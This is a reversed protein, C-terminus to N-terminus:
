VKVINTIEFDATYPTGNMCIILSKLGDRTDNGDTDAAVGQATGYTYNGIQVQNVLIRYGGTPQVTIGVTGILFFFTYTNSGENKFRTNSGITDGSTATVVEISPNTWLDITKSGSTRTATIKGYIRYFQNSANASAGANGSFTQTKTPWTGTGSEVAITFSSSQTVQGQGDTSYSGNIKIAFPGTYAGDQYLPESGNNVVDGGGGGGGGVNNTAIFEDNCSPTGVPPFDPNTAKLSVRVSITNTLGNAAERAAFSANRSASGEDVNRGKRQESREQAATASDRRGQTAAARAAKEAARKQRGQETKNPKEAM